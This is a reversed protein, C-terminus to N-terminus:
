ITSHIYIAVGSRFRNRDKRNVIYGETEIDDDSISDDIKTENLCLM